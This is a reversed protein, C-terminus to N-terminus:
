GESNELNDKETNQVAAQRYAAMDVDYKKRGEQALAQFKQKITPDLDAWRQGLKKAVECISLKPTDEKIKNREEASFLFYASLPQKPANPDKKKKKLIAEM